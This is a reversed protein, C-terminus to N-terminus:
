ARAGAGALAGFASLDPQDALALIAQELALADAEPLAGAANRRYKARVDDAGMPNHEGGRQHPLHRELTEGGALTVRVGGPLSEPFSDYDRVEYDVKAAIALVAPDSLLPEGFTTADVAGAHLWAAIAFPASFKSEYPTAPRQKRDLPDAVLDIGAQPSFVTIREIRDADFGHEAHLEVLADLPAHVFHCAPYPKFAIAPTEWDSGLGATLVDADVDDRGLFASFVGSRGELVAAPGTAGHSALGAAVHAANAMWGPHIRKTESGDTLYAMLGSAMSGAIGLAQATRAADLGTLRAVAATAGFVGCIATPHFGRLHFADGAVAGIRCVIENGALLAGVLAAGDAGVSEGAALSAPVVVASVHAISAPHTDDFDLAHCTVGNVLAAAPAALRRDVGIATAPGAESTAGYALAFPAANAAAGALGCGLVDLLHLGVAERVPAPAESPDLDCAFAAFRQAATAPM